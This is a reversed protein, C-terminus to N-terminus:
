KKAPTAKFYKLSKLVAETNEPNRIGTGEKNQYIRIEIELDTTADYGALRYEGTSSHAAKYPYMKYIHDGYKVEKPEGITGGLLKLKKLLNAAADDLSKSMSTSSVFITGIQNPFSGLRVESVAYTQAPSMAVVYAIDKPVDLKVYGADLAIPGIGSPQNSIDTPSTSSTKSATASAPSAVSSKPAASQKSTPATSPAKNGCATLAVSFTLLAALTRLFKSKM